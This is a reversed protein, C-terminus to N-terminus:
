ALLRALEMVFFPNGETDATLRAALAASPPAGVMADVIRTVEAIALGRLRVHAALPLRVLTAIGRALAQGPVLEDERYTGLVLLPTDRVAQALFALLSLSPADAWHLDDLILLLPRARAAGCLFSSVGDFLQFRAQDPELTPPPPVDGLRARLDGLLPAIVPANEGLQVRLSEGDRNRAYARLVQLWPWLAPAGDGEYGRGWRVEVDQRQAITAVEEALRTKGIGPEGELLALGGTGAAAQEFKAQLLALERDCGVFPSVSPLLAPPM